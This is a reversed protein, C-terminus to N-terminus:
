YMMPAPSGPAFAVGPTLRLLQMNAQPGGVISARYTSYYYYDSFHGAGLGLGLGFFSFPGDLIAITSLPTLHPSLRLNQDAAVLVDVISLPSWDRKEIRLVYKGPALSAFAYQGRADSTTSETQAGSIVVIKADAIPSPMGNSDLVLGSISGTTGAQAPQLVLIATTLMMALAGANRKM